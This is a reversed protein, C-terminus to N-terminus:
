ENSERRIAEPHRGRAAEDVDDESQKAEVGIKRSVLLVDIQSVRGEMVDAIWLLFRGIMRFIMPVTIPNM